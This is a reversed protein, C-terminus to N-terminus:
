FYNLFKLKKYFKLGTLRTPFFLFFKLKLIMFYSCVLLYPPHQSLTELRGLRGQQLEGEQQQCCEVVRFLSSSHAQYSAITKDLLEEGGLRAIIIADAHRGHRM